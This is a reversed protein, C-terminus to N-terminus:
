RLKESSEMSIDDNDMYILGYVLRKLEKLEISDHETDLILIKYLEVMLITPSCRLGFSLRVNKYAQISFNGQAANTYWLFLLKNQDSEILQIQLFAKKFDFCLLKPNFRLLMMAITLKQNIFPGAHM